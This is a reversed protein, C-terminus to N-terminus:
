DEIHYDVSQRYSYSRGGIVCSVICLVLSLLTLTTFLRRKMGEGDGASAHRM